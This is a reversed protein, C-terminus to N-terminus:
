TRAFLDSKATSLSSKETGRAGCVIGLSPLALWQLLGLAFDKIARGEDFPKRFFGATDVAVDNGTM